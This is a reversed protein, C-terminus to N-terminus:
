HLSSYTVNPLKVALVWFLHEHQCAPRLCRQTCSILVVFAPCHVMLCAAAFAGARGPRRQELLPLHCLSCCPRGGPRAQIPQTALATWPVTVRLQRAYAREVRLPLRGLLADLNLELNALVLSGGSLSVRLDSAREGAASKIFRQLLRRVLLTQSDTSARYQTDQQSSSDPSRGLTGLMHQVVLPAGRRLTLTTLAHLVM